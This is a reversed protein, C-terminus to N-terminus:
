KTVFLSVFEVAENCLEYTIYSGVDVVLLKNKLLLSVMGSSRKAVDYM